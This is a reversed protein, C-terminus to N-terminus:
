TNESFSFRWGGRSQEKRRWRQRQGWSCSYMVVIMTMINVEVMVMVMMVVMVMLMTMNRFVPVVQGAGDAEVDDGVEVVEDGAVGSLVLNDGKGLYPHSSPLVCGLIRQPSITM